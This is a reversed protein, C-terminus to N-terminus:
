LGGMDLRPGRRTRRPVSTIAQPSGSTSALAESDVVPDLPDVVVGAVPVVVAVVPPPPVSESPVPVLAPLLSAEVESAVEPGAVIPLPPSVSPVLVVVPEAVSVSVPSVEPDVM